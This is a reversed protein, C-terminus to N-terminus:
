FPVPFRFQAFGSRFALFGVCTKDNKTPKRAVDPETGSQTPAEPKPPPPRAESQTIRSAAQPKPPDKLPTQSEAQPDKLPNKLRDCSNHDPEIPEQATCDFYTLSLLSREM